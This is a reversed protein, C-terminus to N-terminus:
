KRLWAEAKAIQSQDPDMPLRKRMTRRTAANALFDEFAVSCFSQGCEMLGSFLASYVKTAGASGYVQHWNRRERTKEIAQFNRTIVLFTPDCRNVFQPVFFASLPHKLAIVNRGQETAAQQHGSLWTEFWAGFDPAPRLPKLTLEDVCEALANRFPLSEHSDPTREDFTQVHPPCTFAGLRQIYGTIATSGSSWSGLIIITKL